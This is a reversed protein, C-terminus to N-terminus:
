PPRRLWDSPNAAESLLPVRCSIHMKCTALRALPVLRASRSLSHNTLALCVHSEDSVQGIVIANGKPKSSGATIQTLAM